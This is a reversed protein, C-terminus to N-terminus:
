RLRHKGQQARVENVAQLAAPEKKLLNVLQSTTVNLEKAAAAPENDHRDLVDLAEALLAPFDAHDANVSIRRNKCRSSWLTSPGFQEGAPTRVAVALKLRLRRLAARKNEAQSRRENAEAEIETPRHRLRVATEVKNRHQGGPGSRRHFTMECDRLLDDDTM